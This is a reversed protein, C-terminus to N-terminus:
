TLGPPACLAQIRVAHGNCSGACDPVASGGCVGNCDPVASGGCV